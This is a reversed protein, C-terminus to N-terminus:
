GHRLEGKQLQNIRAVPLANKPNRRRVPMVEEGRFFCLPQSLRKFLLVPIKSLIRAARASKFQSEAEGEASVQNTELQRTWNSDKSGYRFHVPPIFGM